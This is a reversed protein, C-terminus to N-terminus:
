LHTKKDKSEYLIFIIIILYTYYLYIHDCVCKGNCYLLIQVIIYMKDM